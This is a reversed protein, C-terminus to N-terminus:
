RVAIEKDFLALAAGIAQDMNYYRYDGLRGCFLVDPLARAKDRYQSYLQRTDDTPIPYYPENEGRVHPEPYEYVLASRACLQGTLRKMETVRTYPITQDPFNVTSAPLAQEADVTRPEFRISRYPLEGCCYEFFEDIPGTYVVRYGDFESLTDLFDTDLRLEINRHGLMREVLRTYGEVPLAQYRDQFYRDDYSVRVPVRATVSPSLQEPLLSWQKFTYGRFVKDYIFAGLEGLLGPEDVLKLIPVHAELGYEAILSRKLQDARAGDFLADISAFNFPVPVCKGDIEALVRHEYPRWNSFPQLYSWVAESNTHFIHPGYAHVQIGEFDVADHANGAIHSRREVVIVKEELISAIREAITAGTLGAGVM